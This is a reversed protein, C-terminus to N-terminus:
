GMSKTSDPEWSLPKPKDISQDLDIIQITLNEMREIYEENGKRDIFVLNKKTIEYLVELALKSANREGVVVGQSFDGINGNRVDGEFNAMQQLKEIKKTIM